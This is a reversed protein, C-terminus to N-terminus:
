FEQLPTGYAVYLEHKPHGDKTFDWCWLKRGDRRLADLTARAHPLLVKNVVGWGLVIRDCTPLAALARIMPLNKDSAPSIDLNLLERPNTARYDAVNTKVFAWLGWDTVFRCDKNLTPDNVHPTATSPNMGILLAFPFAGHPAKAAEGTRRWLTTRYCGEPGHFPEGPPGQGDWGPPLPYRVKGGPDHAQPDPEFLDLTSM